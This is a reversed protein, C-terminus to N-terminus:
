LNNKLWDLTHTLTITSPVFYEVYTSIYVSESVRFCTGEGKNNQLCFIM